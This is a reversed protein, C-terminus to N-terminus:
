KSPFENKLEEMFSKILSVDKLGPSKEFKSNIDVGILSNSEQRLRAIEQLSDAGIGGSLLFPKSNFGRLIDWEFSKGSGGYMETATDFLFMECIDEFQTTFSLDFSRDVRFAKILIKQAIKSKIDAVGEVSEDGHLQIGDLSYKGLAEVIETSSANVFVGILKSAGRKATVGPALAAGVFRQSKPYFIIGLFDPKLEAVDAFNHLNGCVKIQM